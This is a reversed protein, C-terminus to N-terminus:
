QKGFKAVIKNDNIRILYYITSGIISALAYIHKKLVYPTSDVLIDRIIGGGIGTLMGMSISFIAMSLHLSNNLCLFPKLHLLHLNKM